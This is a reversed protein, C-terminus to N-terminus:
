NNIKPLSTTCLPEPPPFCFRDPLIQQTPNPTQVHVECYCFPSEVANNVSRICLYVVVEKCQGRGLSLLSFCSLFANGNLNMSKKGGRGRGFVCM